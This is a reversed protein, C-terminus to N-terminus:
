VNATLWPSSGQIRLRFLFISKLAFCSDKRGTSMLVAGSPLDELFWPLTRSDLANPGLIIGRAERSQLGELKCQSESAVERIRWSACLRPLSKEAEVTVHVFEGLSDKRFCTDM